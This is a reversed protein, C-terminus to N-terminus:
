ANVITKKECEADEFVSSIVGFIVGVKSGDYSTMDVGCDEVAEGASALGFRTTLTTAGLQRKKWYKSVESAIKEDIEAAVTTDHEEASIREMKKMGCKGSILGDWFGPMTAGISTVAGLGTVVVKKMNIEMRGSLANACVPIFIEWAAYHLNEVHEATAAYAALLVGTQIQIVPFLKEEQLLSLTGSKSFFDWKAAEAYQLYVANNVHGFSDLEYGRVTLRYTSKM